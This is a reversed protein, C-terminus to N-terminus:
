EQYFCRALAIRARQGGSVSDGNDSLMTEVGDTFQDLDALLDAAELAGRMLKQDYEKGLLINNKVSGGMLWRGQSLYSMSGRKLIKASGVPIMEGIMAYLLSSTGSSSRGIVGIKEGKRVSLNINRLMFGEENYLNNSEQHDVESDNANSLLLSAGSVESRRESNLRNRRRGGHGGTKEKGFRWKFNGNFIKLALGSRQDQETLEKVYSEKKEDGQLFKNIRKISVMMKLYYNYGSLIETLGAVLSNNYNYFSFFKGLNMDFVPYVLWIVNFIIVPLWSGILQLIGEKFSMLFATVKIWFIEGERTEFMELCFYNEMGNIKVYDVNELINRLLSMRKDKAELYKKRIWAELKFCAYYILLLGILIGFYILTQYLGLYYILFGLSTFLNVISGFILFLTFYLSNLFVVDIQILDAIFGQSITESNLTSFSLIKDQMISFLSSRVALSVRQSYFGFNLSGMTSFITIISGEMIKLGVRKVNPWNHSLPLTSLLKFAETVQAIGFNSVFSIMFQVLVITLTEKWFARIISSLMNKTKQYNALIRSKHDAVQDYKPLRYNMEQTWATTKCTRIMEYAWFFFIRPIFCIKELPHPRGRDQYNRTM